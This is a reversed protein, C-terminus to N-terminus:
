ASWDDVVFSSESSDFTLSLSPELSPATATEIGTDGLDVGWVRFREVTGMYDYALNLDTAGLDPLNTPTTDETLAVGDVAGNIFTMGHRSAINFPVLIGPAYETASSAVTDVTGGEVQTFNVEGTATSDTDLSLTIRNNTDDEWKAYTVQGASGEDAYSLRGNMQISVPYRTLERVSINDFYGDSAEGTGAGVGLTLYLTAAPAVFEFSLTDNSTSTSVDFTIQGTASGSSSTTIRLFVNQGAVLRATATAKYVEGVTLSLAQVTRTQGSAGTLNIEGSVWAASNTTATWGSVDTDFTGNTVLSPGYTETPWPLNAAPILFTEAARTVTSGATPIYSSPTSGAELQAGWVYIGSTGDGTYSQVRGSTTSPVMAILCAGSGTTTAASSFSIRYWGNGVSAIAATGGSVTGLTGNSINFNAFKTIGHTVSSFLLQVIMREAAKVFYSGTYTVGSTLSASAPSLGHWTTATNEVVKDGTLTGDPAIIVNGSVTSDNKTWAGNDFESSYTVLNTRAESEALVGENVWASGNYVHHGVRPLYRASSTTPVYTSASPIVREGAPVDVMGGLDSRYCWMADLSGSVTLTLTTTSATVEVENGETVTGTGAGSLTISGSGICEVTYDAGSVVTISQTAPSASNLALNHPAWKILGDSAVMTANGARSHTITNSLTADSNLFNLDLLGAGSQTASGVAFQGPKKLLM